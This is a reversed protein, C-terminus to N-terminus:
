MKVGHLKIARRTKGFRSKNVIVVHRRTTAFPSVKKIPKEPNATSIVSPLLLAVAKQIWEQPLQGTQMAHLFFANEPPVMSQIMTIITDEVDDVANLAISHAFLDLWAEKYGPLYSDFILKTDLVFGYRIGIQAFGAAIDFTYTPSTITTKELTVTKDVIEEMIVFCGYIHNQVQLSQFQDVQLQMRVISVLREIIPDM